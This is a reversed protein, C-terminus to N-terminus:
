AIPNNGLFCGPIHPQDRHSVWNYPKERHSIRTQPAIEKSLDQELPQVQPLGWGTPSSRTYKALGLIREVKGGMSGSQSQENLLYKSLPSHPSFRWQYLCDYKFSICVRFHEPGVFHKDFAGNVLCLLKEQVGRVIKLHLMAYPLRFSPM